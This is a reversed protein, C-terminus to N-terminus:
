GRWDECGQLAAEDCSVGGITIQGDSTIEPSASPAGAHRRKGAELHIRVREAVDLYAPFTSRDFFHLRINPTRRKLMGEGSTQQVHWHHLLVEQPTANAAMHFM